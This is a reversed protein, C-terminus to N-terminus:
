TARVLWLVLAPVLLFFWIMLKYLGLWAYWIADFRAETLEFWRRHMRYVREHALRHALFCLVLVGYNIAASWLLFPAWFRADM